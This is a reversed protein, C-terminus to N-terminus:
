SLSRLHEALALALPGQGWPVLFDRPVYAYHVASTCANVAASVGRLVGAGSTARLAAALARRGAATADSSAIGLREARLFACAMFAATSTELGSAPNDVVADWNGDVRQSLIM